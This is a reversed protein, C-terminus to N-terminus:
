EMVSNKICFDNMTYHGAKQNVLWKVAEVAGNSFAERSSVHHKFEVIEDTCNAFIVQHDGFISGGRVSSININDRNLRKNAQILADQIMLATGSPSDKKQNHHYEIIQVDTDDSIRKVAFKLTEIFDHLSISYNSSIFVPTHNALEKIKELDNNNFGTTAILVPKKLKLYLPLNISIFTEANTCDIFVDCDIAFNINDIIQLNKIEGGTIISIDKGIYQNGKRGIAYKVEINTQNYITKIISSGLKGTCGVIAIKVM